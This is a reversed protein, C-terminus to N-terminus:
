LLKFSIEGESTEYLLAVEGDGVESMCSYVYEADDNVHYTHKWEISEDEQVLGVFVRGDKRRYTGPVSLLIATKGEIKRSYVIASMQCSNDFAIGELTKRESWTTGNDKSTYYGLPTGYKQRTFLYLTGEVDVLASESSNETMDASRTWTEGKDDSYIVSTYEIGKDHSYCQFIIRGTETVLGRGPGVGYFYEDEKKVNLLKPESWTAGADESKTLYLYTTPYVQYAPCAEVAPAHFFVNGDEEGDSNLLNFYPDVTYDSVEQGNVHMIKGDQLFYNYEEEGKAKLILNGNKDFANGKHPVLPATNLAHGGVHLDALMYVTKGDTALIPDIFATAYEGFQNGYDGFYNAFTYNWTAGKDTSRAVITDLGCADGTQDWRADAAAVLTGDDLTVMAPIRFYKSGATGSAFPQGKTTGDAPKIGMEIMTTKM